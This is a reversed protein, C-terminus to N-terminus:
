RVEIAIIVVIGGVILAAPLSWMSIGFCVLAVASIQVTLKSISLLRAFASPRTKPMGWLSTATRACFKGFRALPMIITLVGSAICAMVKRSKAASPVGM